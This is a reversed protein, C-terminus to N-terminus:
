DDQQDRQRTLEVFHPLFELVDRRAQPDNRMLRLALSGTSDLWRACRMM